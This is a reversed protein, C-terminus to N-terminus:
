GEKQQSKNEELIMPISVFIAALKEATDRLAAAIIPQFDDARPLNFIAHPAGVGSYGTVVNRSWARNGRCDSVTVRLPFEVVGVAGEKVESEWLLVLNPEAAWQIKVLAASDETCTTGERVSAFSRAAANRITEELTSGYPVAVRLDAFLLTMYNVTVVAAGERIAPDIGLTVPFAKAPIAQEPSAAAAVVQFQRACGATSALLFVALLRFSPWSGQSPLRALTRGCLVGWAAYWQFSWKKKM